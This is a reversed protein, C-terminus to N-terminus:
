KALDSLVKESVMTRGGIATIKEINNERIYDVLTKPAENAKTLLIPMDLLGGVPAIVLADAWEQGNAVFVSKANPFQKNAIDIATEYRTSGKMTEVVTPLQSTAASSVSSSGGAIYVKNIGLEDIANKITGPVSSSKVLLIPFGERSAFPGVTLADAFVEGSAIVGTGLKGTVSVVRRAVQASTEYRDGGYIREVDDKDFKALQSMVAESVSSRGGVIIIDRAGLRKIEAAVRSDLDKSNTLLIPAKLVKALVSATMADPFNAKDVIIVTDAQGYYKKSIEIATEVRDKGNTRDTVIDKPEEPTPEPVSPTPDPTPKVKVKEIVATYTTDENLIGEFAPTWGKFEYGDKVKVKPAQTALEKADKGKPYVISNNIGGAENAVFEAKDKDSEKIVFNVRIEEPVVIKKEIIATYTTDENLIGEFAPTWGKFEYGEKVKVEPAQAEVEKADKGKPFILSNLIGGAENAVFEAKDKDAEKIVFNVRIEEPVVIKKEIIATYTTDENLIGEFAPTWGKFEYGEKVKVEPAQAEVEKADKGKPFILSNLIGGAENAVFEAKDKDAEKIVFNVRVENTDPAVTINVTVVAESGDPYKVVVKFYSTGPTDGKSIVKDERPYQSEITPQAEGKPYTPITVANLVEEVTTESRFPKEIHKVVPPYENAESKWQAIFVEDKTFELTKLQEETYIKGDSEMKWGLFELEEGNLEKVASMLGMDFYFAPIVKPETEKEITIANDIDLGSKFVGGNLQFKLNIEKQEKEEPGVTINVTVVAESGDPYKVLVKAYSTGPTDGKSIVKDERPYQSEITPQAEGKPYTPITVANLVEEVTTESRFPKEIHKVVPPYENAESKWQAIFVEDKTFELTKLQEETYIKGDSEMKWGLFELEEGNLEKVASMLGMDFYFAPIVKPETEKEITIANDIDLGSKFVGGNLQFKLNIEKQEVPAEKIIIRVKVEITSGDPYKVVVYAVHDTKSTGDPLNAADYKLAKTPQAEGKPYTPVTVADLVEEETVANGVTNNIEETVPPYKTAEDDWIAKLVTDETFEHDLLEEQSYIREDSNLKWGLFKVKNGNIEKVVSLFGDDILGQIVDRSTRNGTIYETITGMDFGSAFKGGNEDISIKIGRSPDEIAMLMVNLSKSLYNKFDKYSVNQNKGQFNELKNTALVPSVTGFIIALSLLLSMIKKKM